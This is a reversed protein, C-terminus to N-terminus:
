SEPEIIIHRLVPFATRLSLTVEDITSEIQDTTLGDQFNIRLALLADDPGLQMSQLSRVKAVRPNREVVGLMERAVVPELARGILYERSEATLVFGTAVLLMGEVAATAGDIAYDHTRYVALLGGVAVVAAGITVLDQYFIAKLGQNASELLAQLTQRSIRLERLTVWIGALSVLLTAVVVLLAEGIHSVPQPAFMQTVGTVLAVIGATTFTVVISVFAWFFREKGFGFPHAYDAPRRSLYLGWLLFGSGALDTVTYIAQSLVTRSGSLLAVELNVVFLALNLLLTAAIVVQPRM